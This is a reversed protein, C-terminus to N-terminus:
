WDEAHMVMWWSASLYAASREFMLTPVRIGLGSLLDKEWPIEREGERGREREGGRGRGRESGRESRGREREREWPWTSLLQTAPSSLKPALACLDALFSSCGAIHPEEISSGGGAWSNVHLWGDPCERSYHGELDAIARPSPPTSIKARSSPAQQPEETASPACHAGGWFDGLVHNNPQGCM